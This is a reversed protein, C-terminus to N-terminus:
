RMCTAEASGYAASAVTRRPWRGADATFGGDMQLVVGAAAKSVKMHAAVEHGDVYPLLVREIL